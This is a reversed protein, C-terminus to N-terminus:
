VESQRELPFLEVHLTGSRMGQPLWLSSLEVQAVLQIMLLAYSGWDYSDTDGRGEFSGTCRWGSWAEPFILGLFFSRTM